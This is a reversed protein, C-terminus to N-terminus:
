AGLIYIEVSTGGANGTIDINENTSDAVAKSQGAYVGGGSSPYITLQDSAAMFPYTSSASVVINETTSKNVVFIAKVTALVVPATGKVLVLSDTNQLATLDLTTGTNDVTGSFAVVVDSSSLPINNIASELTTTIDASGVDTTIDNETIDFRLGAEGSIVTM